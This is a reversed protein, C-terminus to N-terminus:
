EQRGRTKYTLVPALTAVVRVLGAEVLDAVVRDIPKYAPPAEEYLLDRDGCVVHSKFSTRTLAEATFRERIRERATARNWKRGAGHALSYASSAGDGQPVVLYSLSGRSGPIVVPGEDAPAAGKRHLWVTRGDVSRPTLSNHCVDLVRRGHAGLGQLMRRAVLARNARGWAVAQDHRTLYTRAAPSHEMLGEAGYKDVCARLIAEGLGRGLEPIKKPGFLLLLAVIVVLWHLPAFEGM